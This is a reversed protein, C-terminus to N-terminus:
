DLVLYRAIERGRASLKDFFSRPMTRENREDYARHWTPAYLVTIMARNKETANCSGAHWIRVDWFIAWGTPARVHSNRMWEPEQDLRPPDIMTHQTCPVIRTAGSEKTFDVMPFSVAVHPVIRPPIERLFPHGHVHLVQDDAGPRSYDGGARTCVFEEGGFIGDLIPLISHLDVMAAWEPQSAQNAFSHRRYGRGPLFEPDDKEREAMVRDAGAQAYRLQDSTLVDRILVFGDRHFTEAALQVTGAPLSHTWDSM